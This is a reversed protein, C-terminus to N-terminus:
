VERKVEARIRGPAAGRGNRAPKAGIGRRERHRALLLDLGAELITENKACPHSHSLADRAVDLKALFCRSVTVHTRRLNEDLPVIMKTAPGTVRLLPEHPQVVVSTDHKAAVSTTPLRPTAIATVVDRLPPRDVPRIAAVVDAAERRSLHFFRPLVETLNGAEIVKALEIVTSLCLSGNRLPAVVEPHERVLKCLSSPWPTVSGPSSHPWTIPSPVLM